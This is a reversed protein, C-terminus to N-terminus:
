DHSAKWVNYSLLIVFGFFLSHFIPFIWNLLSDCMNQEDLITEQLKVCSHQSHNLSALLTLTLMTLNVSVARFGVGGDATQFNTPISHLLLCLSLVSVFCCQSACIKELIDHNFLHNVIGITTCLIGAGNSLNGLNVTFCDTLFQYVSILFASIQTLSPIILHNGPAYPVPLTLCFVVTIDWM